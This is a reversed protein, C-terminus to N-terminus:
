NPDAIAKLFEEVEAECWYLRVGIRIPQPIRESELDRYISSRSRGGLKDSLQDLTIYRDPAQPM